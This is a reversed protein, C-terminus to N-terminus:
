RAVVEEVASVFRDIDDQTHKETVCILLHDELRPARPGLDVGGFIRRELLGANLEAVTRGTGRVDLAFERFFPASPSVATGPIDALRQAAYAGRSLIVDGIEAFGTPGLLSMYVSAAIAWLNVSTGTWDNAEERSGYSNQAFRTLAFAHEGERATECINFLLTPYQSVYRDDDGSAIFGGTSGGCNMHIGLSQVPGVAIDAGYNGPPALAGLSIPDVGVIAEAGAGHTVEVLSAAGAEITGLFSPNEFYVAATRDGVAERVADVPVLGTEWDCEVIRIAIHDRMGSPQCYNGIVALREVDVPGAIVVEDRGSMRAAMRIASGAACGWSYSPLSAFDLNLLEALQSTFEFFMQKAGFDSASSGWCATSLETRSVIEDCVAPVYHPWCAAGLFSLTSECDSNRALLDRLRRSLDAESRVGVDLALPRALRHEAPIQAFLEDVDRCGLADLMAERDRPTSNAMYPHTPATM